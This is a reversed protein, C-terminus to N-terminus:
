KRYYEVKRDRSSNMLRNVNKDIFGQIYLTQENSLYLSSTLDAASKTKDAPGGFLKKGDVTINYDLASTTTPCDSYTAILQLAMGMAIARAVVVDHTGNLSADCKVNAIGDALGQQICTAPTCWYENEILAEYSKFTHVGNTREVVKKDLGYVVSLLYSYRSDLQGPFEGSVGGRAKHSMLTGNPVMLRKGKVGQVTQFAMSASFLTITHVPRNLNNLSEIMEMGAFISGGPSDLILFLPEKSALKSDLERARQQVKAVTDGDFEDNMVITNDKTLTVSYSKTATSAYVSGSLALLAAFLLKKM